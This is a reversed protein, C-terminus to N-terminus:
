FDKIVVRKIGTGNKSYNRLIKLLEKKIMKKTDTLINDNKFGIM